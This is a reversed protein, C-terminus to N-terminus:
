DPDVPLCRVGPPLARLFSRGYRATVLRSDLVVVRGSDEASRILRGFGQKFRIIARPLADERFPDRGAHKLREARAETLPRDPPDFPLRTIIVNRLAHGRIDVGQWFSDAGLLVANTSQRFSELLQTRPADEGHVLLPLNRERLPERLLRAVAALTAFSTFLVFAGGGTVDIQRVIAATLAQLHDQNNAAGPAPLRADVYLAMQRAYDFPSGLQLASAGECGLRSIIHAFATEAHEPSEDRDVARTSLTASTLIVSQTRDFLHKRLVPAIDIPACCLEVRVGRADQQFEAWYVHDNLSQDVIVAAAEAIDAARRAYSNLEYKDEENRVRERLASLQLSLDRMVPTLTNPLFNPERIRSGALRRQSKAQAWSEFFAATVAHAHLTSEVAQVVLDHADAASLMTHLNALYGKRRRSDYLTRLLFGVRGESLTIGFHESAVDEITHAEDIIVHHYEPLIAAGDQRLALDSFFLAHNCILLNAREAERRASQYFCEHYRACKRGMCNDADSRALDWVEQRSLMPLTSRTGDETDYAWSEIQQLSIRSAEDRLLADARRSAMELRRLSVYNGRGKVLVPRIDGHWRAINPTLTSLLLPIDRTVLQEQLAITNTTVVVVEDHALIRQIAPVLYAFSKGVGTGAEVLLHSHADMTRAVTEAMRIQEPRSEFAPGIAEAVPGDASLISADFPAM